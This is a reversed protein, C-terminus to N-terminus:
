SSTLRATARPGRALAPPHIIPGVFDESGAFRPSYGEDYNYYGRVHFLFQLLASLTGHSQIFVTWRSEATSWSASIVKHHFRIHRGIRAM